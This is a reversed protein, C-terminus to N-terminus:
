GFDKKLGVCILLPLNYRNGDFFIIVLRGFQYGFAAYKFDGSLLYGNKLWVLGMNMGFNKLLATRYITNNLFRM